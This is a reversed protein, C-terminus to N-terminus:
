RAQKEIAGGEVLIRVREVRSLKRVIEAYVWPVPAFRGPWDERNHPWAIWTAEHAEWEAPMRFGAARPTAATLRDGQQLHRQVRRHAPRASLALQASGGRHAASRVGCDADGRPRAVRGGAGRRVSRGRVIRGLVGARAGASGRVGRSEGGGRV